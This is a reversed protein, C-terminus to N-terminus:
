VEDSQEAEVPESVAVLAAMVDDLLDKKIAKPLNRWRPKITDLAACALTETNNHM